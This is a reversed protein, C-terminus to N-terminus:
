GDQVEKRCARNAREISFAVEGTYMVPLQQFQLGYQLGQQFATLQEPTDFGFYDFDSKLTEPFVWLEPKRQPRDPHLVVDVVEYVANYTDVPDLGALEWADNVQKLLADCEDIEYMRAVVLAVSIMALEGLGLRRATTITEDLKESSNFPTLTDAAGSWGYRFGFSRQPQQCAEDHYIVQEARYVNIAM